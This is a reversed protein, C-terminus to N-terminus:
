LATQLSSACFTPENAIITLRVKLKNARFTLRFRGKNALGDSVTQSGSCTIAEVNLKKTM